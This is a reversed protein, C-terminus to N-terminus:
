KKDAARRFTLTLVAPGQGQTWTGTIETGAANLVGAYSAGVSPIEITVNSGKQSMGIPIEVGSGDLDVITGTAFGGPQNAMRLVLRETKGDAELTGNWTGELAEGIPASKPAPTIRADGTRTVTFPLSYQGDRSAFNGAISKGDESVVGHFTGGSSTRLELTVGTGDVAVTSFPLGKVSQTPSGFTGAMVGKGDKALDLEIKVDMTPAAIAGEWHGSPDIAVQALLWAAGLLLRGAVLLMRIFTFM